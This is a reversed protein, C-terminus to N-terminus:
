GSSKGEAQLLKLIRAAADAVSASQAEPRSMVAAMDPRTRPHARM